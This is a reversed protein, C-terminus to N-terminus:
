HGRVSVCACAASKDSDRALWHPVLQRPMSGHVEAEDHEEQALLVLFIGNDKSNSNETCGCM